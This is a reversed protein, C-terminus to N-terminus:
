LISEIHDHVWELDQSLIDSDIRIFRGVIDKNKLIGIVKDEVVLILTANPLNKVLTKLTEMGKTSVFLDIYKRKKLVKVDTVSVFIRQDLIPKRPVCYTQKNDITAFKQPCNEKESIM